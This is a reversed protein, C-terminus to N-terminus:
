VSDRRREVEMGRMLIGMKDDVDVRQVRECEVDSRWKRSLFSMSEM